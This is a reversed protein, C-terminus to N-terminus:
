IYCGVAILGMRLVGMTIGRIFSYVHISKSPKENGLVEFTLFEFVISGLTKIDMKYSLSLVRDKMGSFRAIVKSIVDISFQWGRLTLSVWLCIWIESFM